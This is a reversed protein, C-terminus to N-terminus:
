HGLPSNKPSDRLAKVLEAMHRLQANAKWLILSAATAECTEVKLIANLNAIAKTTMGGANKPDAPVTAQKWICVGVQSRTFEEARNQIKGSLSRKAM